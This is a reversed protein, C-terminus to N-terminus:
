VRRLRKFSGITTFTGMCLAKFEKGYEASLSFTKFLLVSGIHRNHWAVFTDAFSQAQIGNDIDRVYEAPVSLIKFLPVCGTYCGVFTHALSQVM